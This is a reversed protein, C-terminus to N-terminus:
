PAEPQFEFSKLKIRATGFNGLHYLSAGVPSFEFDAFPQALLHDLFKAPAIGITVHPNFNKGTRQPVFGAIYDITPQDVEPQAATTVFAAPTGLPVTFPAVAAVIQQQLSVLEPTPRVVIGALGQGQWPLYYYGYATLRFHGPDSQAFIKEVATQLEALQVTRVYRQLLTIHPHHTADLAFGSPNEQRLYENAARAHDIMIADPELAVDIATVEAAHSPHNANGLWISGLVLVM